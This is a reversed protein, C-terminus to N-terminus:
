VLSSSRSCIPGASVQEGEGQPVGGNEGLPLGRLLYHRPLTPLLLIKDLM